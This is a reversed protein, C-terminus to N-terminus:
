ANGCGHCECDAQHHWVCAGFLRMGSCSIQMGPQHPSTATYHTLRHLSYDIRQATFPALPLPEGPIPEFTGNAIHDDTGNLDPVDFIDRLPRKIRDAVSAEVYTGELFAFHVPIPTESEAVTIPVGHNRM